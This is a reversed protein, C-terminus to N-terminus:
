WLRVHPIVIGLIVGVAILMAVRLAIGGLPDERERAAGDGAEAEAWLHEWMEEITPREDLSM